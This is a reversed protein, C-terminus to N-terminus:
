YRLGLSPFKTRVTKMASLDIMIGDDGVANGAINHGGGRISVKLANARSRSRMCWM